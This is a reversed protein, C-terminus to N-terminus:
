VNVLRADMSGANIEIQRRRRAVDWSIVPLRWRRIERTGGDKSVSQCLEWELLVDKIESRWYALACACRQVSRSCRAVFADRGDTSKLNLVHKLLTVSSPM